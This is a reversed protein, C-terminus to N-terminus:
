FQLASLSTTILAIYVKYIIIIIILMSILNIKEEKLIPLKNLAFSGIGLL